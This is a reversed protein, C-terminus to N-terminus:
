KEDDKKINEFVDKNESVVNEENEDEKGLLRDFFNM